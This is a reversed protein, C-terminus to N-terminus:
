SPATRPCPPIGITKMDMCPTTVCENINREKTYRYVLFCGMLQAFKVSAYASNEWNVSISSGM